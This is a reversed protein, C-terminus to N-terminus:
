SLEIDGYPFGEEVLVYDESRFGNFRTATSSGYGGMLGFEIWDGEAIDRPLLPQHALRDISDCTPGWVTFPELSEDLPRAARFSRAPHRLPSHLQEQFGGYVGDNIFVTHDSRRHKVQTLLSVCSGVLARGPECVLTTAGADFYQEFSAQIASFYQPLAPMAADGYRVPFGGGINLSGVAVQSSEVIAAAARINDAYASPDTCQSGPHFTLGCRYGLDHASRLLDAALALDAGFKESLDYVAKNEPIRFRLTLEVSADGAIIEHLKQLEVADDFAFSRVAYDNFATAIEHRSKVPNDYLLCADAVLDRVLAIETLSAVDFTTVGLEGLAAVVLPEPNAKVAYALVGAFGSQFRSVQRALAAKSLCYVPNQPRLREIVDGASAYTRSIPV